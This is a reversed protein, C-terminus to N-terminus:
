TLSYRTNLNKLVRVEGIGFVHYESDATEAVDRSFDIATVVRRSKSMRFYINTITTGCDHYICAYRSNRSTHWQGLVVTHNDRYCIWMGTCRTDVYCVKVVGLDRLVALSLFLDVNPSGVLPMPFDCRHYRPPLPTTTTATGDGIVGLRRITKGTNVNEYYFGTICGKQGLLIWNFHNGSALHPLIYPGFTHTRQSTTQIVLAPEAFASSLVNPIRLWAYAIQEGDCLPFYLECGHQHGSFQATRTFHAGLGVISNRSMYVSFGKAYEDGDYLSLYRLFRRKPNRITSQM